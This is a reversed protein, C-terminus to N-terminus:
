GVFFKYRVSFYMFLPVMPAVIYRASKLTQRWFEFGTLKSVPMDSAPNSPTEQQSHDEVAM